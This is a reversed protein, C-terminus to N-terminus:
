GFRERSSANSFDLEFGNGEARAMLDGAEKLSTKSYGRWFKVIKGDQILMSGQSSEIGYAKIIEHKPDFLTLFKVGFGAKFQDFTGQDANFVAVFNVKKADIFPESLKKFLPVADPNAGCGHKVFYLVLSKGDATLSELTHNKGDSGIASFPKASNAESPERSPDQSGCKMGTAALVSGVALVSMWVKM